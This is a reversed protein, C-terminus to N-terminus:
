EMYSDNHLLHHAYAVIGSNLLQISDLNNNSVYAAVVETLAHGPEPAFVANDVRVASYPVSTGARLFLIFWHTWNKSVVEQCRHM